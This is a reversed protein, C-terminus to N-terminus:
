GDGTRLRGPGFISSANLATLLIGTLLVSESTWSTAIVAVATAGAACLSAVPHAASSAHLARTSILYIAVPVTLSLGAGLASIQSEHMSRDVAVSIGAGVAAASAFVVLHGYGWVFARMQQDAFVARARTAARETPESFYLWWMSFVTLLGGASITLLHSLSGSADLAQQVGVTAALIAEGLVIITFGAYRDAIHGPHWSTAGAREAWLPVSLEAIILAVVSLVWAAGHTALLAVWGAQCIAIGVAYRVAGARAGPHRSARLWQGVMAVRMIVFGAVTITFDNREFARPVGAALVLVGATQLLTMTRYLVDDTDYASAFWTFNMWAWWIAFFVLPYSVLAHGADGRSLSHHLSLSAQAVGVVFTLDVFM